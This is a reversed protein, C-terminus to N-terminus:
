ANVYDVTWEIIWNVDTKPKKEARGGIDVPTVFHAFMLDNRALLALENIDNSIAQHIQAVAVLVVQNGSTRQTQIPIKEVLIRIETEGPDPAVRAGTDNHPPTTECDGGSGIGIYDLMYNEPDRGILGRIIEESADTVSNHDGFIPVLVGNREEFVRVKGSPRGRVRSTIKLM